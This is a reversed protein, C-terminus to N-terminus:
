AIEKGSKSFRKRWNPCGGGHRGKGTAGCVPCGKGDFPPFEWGGLMWLGTKGNRNESV